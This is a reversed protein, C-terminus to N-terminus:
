SKFTSVWSRTSLGCFVMARSAARIATLFMSLTHFEVGVFANAIDATFGTQTPGTIRASLPKASSKPMRVGLYTGVVQSALTLTGGFGAGGDLIILLIM